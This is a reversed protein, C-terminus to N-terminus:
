AAASATAAFAELGKGWGSDLAARLAEAQEGFRELDRHELEIRTGDAGDAVFRIELETVFGPDFRWQGDIQWALLVRAPPEWALVRGWDCETGDAGREFWRGGQRPEMVIEQRPSALLSYEAPWWRHMGATFVEFARRPGVGVHLSKRIPAPAATRTM